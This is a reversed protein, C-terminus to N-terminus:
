LHPRVFEGFVAPDVTRKSVSAKRATALVTEYGDDRRLVDGGRDRVWDPITRSDECDPISEFHDQQGRERGWYSRATGGALHVSDM